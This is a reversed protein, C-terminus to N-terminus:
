RYRFGYGRTNIKTFGEGYLSPVLLIAPTDLHNLLPNKKFGHYIVNKESKIKEFEELSLSDNSFPDIEGYVNFNINPFQKALSIFIEIGKSKLLRACYVANIKKNKFNYGSSLINESSNIYDKTVGSGFILKFNLSKSNNGIIKKFLDLDEPNQFIM